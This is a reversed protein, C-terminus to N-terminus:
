CLHILSFLANATCLIHLGSVHSTKYLPITFNYWVNLIILRIYKTILVLMVRLFHQTEWQYTFSIVFITMRVHGSPLIASNTVSWMSDDCWMLFLFQTKIRIDCFSRNVRKFCWASGMCNGPDQVLFLAHCVTWFLALCCSKSFPMLSSCLFILYALQLSFSPFFRLLLSQGVDYLLLSLSDTSLSLINPELVSSHFIVPTQAARTEAPVTIPQPLRLCCSHGAEPRWPDPLSLFLFFVDVWLRSLFHFSLFLCFRFRTCQTCNLIHIWHHTKVAFRLKM